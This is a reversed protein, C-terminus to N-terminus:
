STSEFRRSTVRRSNTERMMGLSLPSSSHRARVFNEISEESSAPFPDGFEERLLFGPTRLLPTFNQFPIYGTSVKRSHSGPQHVWMKIGFPLHLDCPTWFLYSSLVCMEGYQGDNTTATSPSGHHFSQVDLVLWSLIGHTCHNRMAEVCLVKQGCERAM